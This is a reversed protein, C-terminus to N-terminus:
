VINKTIKVSQHLLKKTSKNRKILKIVIQFITKIWSFKTPMKAEFILGKQNRKLVMKIKLM